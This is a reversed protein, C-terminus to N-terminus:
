KRFLKKLLGKKNSQSFKTLGKRIIQSEENTTAENSENNNKISDIEVELSKIKEQSQESNKLALSQQNYLLQQQQKLLENLSKIQKNLDEKDKKLSLIIHEKSDIIEQYLEKENDSVKNQNAHENNKLDEVDLNLQNAKYKLVKNTITKIDEKSEIYLTNNKKILNINNRRAHNFITQKSTNLEKALEICSKM